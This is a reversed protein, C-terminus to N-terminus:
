WWCLTKFTKGTSPAWHLIALYIYTCPTFWTNCNSFPWRTIRVLLPFCHDKEYGPWSDDDGNIFSQHRKWIEDDYKETVSFKLGHETIEELFMDLSDGRKPSFFMAECPGVKKLLCEVLQALGKHFEKFFTSGFWM